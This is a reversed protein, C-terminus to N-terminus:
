RYHMNIVNPALKPSWLSALRKTSWIYKIKWIRLKQSRGSTSIWCLRRGKQKQTYKANYYINRLVYIYISWLIYGTNHIRYNISWLIYMMLIYIYIYIWHHLETIYIGHYVPTIYIYVYMYIYICIYIYISWVSIGYHIKQFTYGIPARPSLCPRVSPVLSPNTGAAYISGFLRFDSM